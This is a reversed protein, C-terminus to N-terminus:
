RCPVPYTLGPDPRPGTFCTIRGPGDAWFLNPDRARPSAGNAGVHVEFHLHPIGGALVGTGGLEGIQDGRAVRDGAKATRKHLHFYHTIMRRGQADTGHDIAIRRGYAPESFSRQVVGDAPAIVPAGTRAVIDIGLHSGRQGSTDASKPIENFIQTMSPAKAPLHLRLAGAKADQHTPRKGFRADDNVCATLVLVLPLALTLAALRM